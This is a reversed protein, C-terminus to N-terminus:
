KLTAYAQKADQTSIAFASLGEGHVLRERWEANNPTPKLVGLLEIYDRELIFLYNGTGMHASHTGRPTVTFGLRAYLDRSLDLDRVLIVAHDIGDIGQAM